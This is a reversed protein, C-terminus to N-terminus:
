RFAEPIGRVRLLTFESNDFQSVFADPYAAALRGLDEPHEYDLLSALEGHGIMLHTVRNDRILQWLESDSRYGYPSLSTRKAYLAVARARGSLIVADAPTDTRIAELLARGDANTVGPSVPGRPAMVHASAFCVVLAGPLAGAAIRRLAAPLREGLWAFGAWAYYLYLPFLPLMYRQQIMTGVWYMSLPVMYLVAFVELVTVGRRLSRIYGALALASIALFLAARLATDYPSPLGNKFLISLSLLYAKANGLVSPADFRILHAYSGDAHLTSAQILSLVLWVACAVLSTTGPRRCTLLETLVVAPLIVIGVSRTGYALYACAGLAIGAAISRGDLRLQGHCWRDAMWLAMLCFFLFTTDPRVEDRFGVVFSSLALAAMVALAGRDGIRDRLLLVGACVSACLMLMGFLKLLHLDIGWQQILPAILLPYVPPYTAPGPIAWPNAIYGTDGYPTGGLLNLAHAVYQAFDDSWDHGSRLLPVNISWVVACVVVLALALRVPGMHDIRSTSIM